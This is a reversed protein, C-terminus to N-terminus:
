DNSAAMNAGDGHGSRAASSNLEDISTKISDVRQRIEEIKLPLDKTDKKLAEVDKQVQELYGINTDLKALSSDLKNKILGAESGQSQSASSVQGIKTDVGDIKGLLNGLSAQSQRNFSFSQWGLALLGFVVIGILVPSFSKGKGGSRTDVPRPSPEAPKEAQQLKEALSTARLKANELQQKLSRVQQALNQNVWSSVLQEASTEGKGQVIFPSWWDGTLPQSCCSLIGGRQTPMFYALLASTAAIDAWPRPRAEVPVPRESGLDLSPASVPTVEARGASDDMFEALLELMPFGRREFEERSVVHGAFNKRDGRLTVFLCIHRELVVV